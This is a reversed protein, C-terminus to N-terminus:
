GINKPYDFLLFRKEAKAFENWNNIDAEVGFIGCTPMNDLDVLGLSDIFYTIGPNHSFIAITEWDENLNNAIVDYFTEAPAHYLKEILTIDKKKFDFQEAFYEATTLARVAASSVIADLRFGKDWLRKAMVPADREGRDNLPREFDSQGLNAWSSKAHRILFVQKM